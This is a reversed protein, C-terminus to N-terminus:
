KVNTRMYQRIFTLQNVVIVLTSFSFM